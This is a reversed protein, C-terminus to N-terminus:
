QKILNKQTIAWNYFETPVSQASSLTLSCNERPQVWEGANSSSTAYRYIETSDIYISSANVGATSNVVLSTRSSSNAQFSMTISVDQLLYSWSPTEAWVYTGAPITRRADLDKILALTDNIKPTELKKESDIRIVPPVATTVVAPNLYTKEDPVIELTTNKEITVTKEKPQRTNYHVTKTTIAM